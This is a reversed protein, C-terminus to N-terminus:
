DIPILRVEYMREFREKEEPSLFIFYLVGNLFYQYKM